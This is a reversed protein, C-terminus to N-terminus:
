VVPFGGDIPKFNDIVAGPWRTRIIINIEPGLKIEVMRKQRPTLMFYPIWSEASLKIDVAPEIIEKNQNLNFRWLKFSKPYLKQDESHIEISELESRLIPAEKQKSENAKQEEVSIANIIREHSRRRLPLSRNNTIADKEVFRSLLKKSPVDAGLESAILRMETKQRQGYWANWHRLKLAVGPKDVKSITKLDRSPLTKNCSDSRPVSSDEVSNWSGDIILVSYCTEGKVLWVPKEPRALSHSVNEVNDTLLGIGLKESSCNKWNSSIQGTLILTLLEVSACETGPPTTDLLKSPDTRINLPLPKEEHIKKQRDECTCRILSPCCGGLKIKSAGEKVDRTGPLINEKELFRKGLAKGSACRSLQRAIVNHGHIRLLTELFLAIGGKETFARLNSKVYLEIDRINTWSTKIRINSNIPPGDGARPAIAVKKDVWICAPILDLRRRMLEKKEETTPLSKNESNRDDDKPINDEVVASSTSTNNKDSYVDNRKRSIDDDVKNGDDEKGIAAFTAKREAIAERLLTSYNDEINRCKLNRVAKRYAKKKRKLSVQAAVFILSSLADALRSEFERKREDTTLSSWPKKGSTFNVENGRISAGTYLLGTVISTIATLAKCHYPPPIANRKDNVQSQRWSFFEIDEVSPSKIVLGSGCNSLQFGANLWSHPIGTFAPGEVAASTSTFSSVNNDYGDEEEGSVNMADEDVVVNGNNGENNRNVEGSLSPHDQDSSSGWLHKLPASCTEGSLWDDDSVYDDINSEVHDDDDIDSLRRQGSKEKPNPSLFWTSPKSLHTSNPNIKRHIANVAKMVASRNAANSDHKDSTSNSPDEKVDLNGRRRSSETIRKSSKSNVRGLEDDSVSITTEVGDQASIRRPEGRKQRRGRHRRLRENNSDGDDQDHNDDSSARSDQSERRNGLNEVYKVVDQQRVPFSRNVRRKMPPRAERDNGVDEQNDIRRIAPMKQDDGNAEDDKDLPNYGSEPKDDNENSKRARKAARKKKKTEDDDDAAQFDSDLSRRLRRKSPSPYDVALEIPRKKTEIPNRSGGHRHNGVMEDSHYESPVDHNQEFRFSRHVGHRAVADAAPKQDLGHDVNANAIPNRANMEAPFDPPAEYQNAAQTAFYDDWYLNAAMQLNGATAELVNSAKRPDIKISVEDRDGGVGGQQPPAVQLLMNYFTGLVDNASDIGRGHNPAREAAASADHRYKGSSSRHHRSKGREEQRTAQEREDERENNNGTDDNSESSGSAENSTAGRRSARQARSESSRTM